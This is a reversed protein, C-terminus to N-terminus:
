DRLTGTRAGDPYGAVCVVTRDGRRWGAGNPYLTFLDLEDLDARPAYAGFDASCRDAALDFVEDEGPYRGTGTLEVVAFVEGRHPESCPVAPVSMAYGEDVDDVCDGAVLESTNLRGGKIIEGSAGREVDPSLIAVAVLTAFGAVWLGSLALGGIALGKGREGTRRIQVLAIVGFTISLILGLGCIGVFGLVLSAIAFGNTRRPQAVGPVDSPPPPPWPQGSPPHAGPDPPSPVTM